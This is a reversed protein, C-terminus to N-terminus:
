AEKPRMPDRVLVQCQGFPDVEKEWPEGFQMVWRQDEIPYDTQTLLRAAHTPMDSGIFTFIPGSGQDIWVGSEGFPPRVNWM